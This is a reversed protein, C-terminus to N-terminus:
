KNFTKRRSILLFLSGMFMLLLLGIIYLLTTGPGGAALTFPTVHINAIDMGYLAVGEHISYNNATEATEMARQALAINNTAVEYDTNARSLFEQAHTVQEEAYKVANATGDDSDPNGTQARENAAQAEALIANAAALQKTASEQDAIAQAQATLAEAYAEAAEKYTINANGDSEYEEHVFGDRDVMITRIMPNTIYGSYDPVEQIYFIRWGHKYTEEHENEGSFLKKLKILGQADTVFTQNNYFPDGNEDIGIPTDDDVEETWIKFTVGSLKTNDAGDYKYLVLENWTDYLKGSNMDFQMGTGDCISGDANLGNGLTLMVDDIPNSSTITVEAMQRSPTFTVIVPAAPTPITVTSITGDVDVTIVDQARGSITLAYQRDPTLNEITLSMSPTITAGDIIDEYYWKGLPISIGYKSSVGAWTDFYCTTNVDGKQAAQYNVPLSTDLIIGRDTDSNPHIQFAVYWEENLEYGDPSFLEVAIYSGYPLSEDIGDLGDNDFRGDTTAFGDEDTTITFLPTVNDRFYEAVARKDSVSLNDYDAKSTDVWRFTGNDDRVYVSQESINYIGIVAGGLTDEEAGSTLSGEDYKTFSVGGRYIDDEARATTTTSYQGDTEIWGSVATASYDQTTMSSALSTNIIVGDQRIQFIVYWDENIDYGDPKATEKAIYTGYPLDRAATTAIGNTNTYIQQVIYNEFGATNYGNTRIANLQAVGSPIVQNDKNVVSGNWPAVVRSINYITIQTMALGDGLIADGQPTTLATTSARDKDYKRFSVGGQIIQDNVTNVNADAELTNTNPNVIGGSVINYVPTLTNTQSSPNNDVMRVRMLWGANAPYMQNGRTETVEYGWDTALTTGIPIVDDGFYNYTSVIDEADGDTGFTLVCIVGNNPVATGNKLVVEYGSINRVTVQIGNFNADGQARIMEVDEKHVEISGYKQVEGFDLETENDVDITGSQNPEWEFIAYGDAGVSITGYVPTNNITYGAPAFVESVRVSGLPLQEMRPNGSDLYLYQGPAITDSVAYNASTLWGNRNATDQYITGDSARNRWNGAVDAISATDYTFFGDENTVFYWTKVPTGGSRPATATDFYEMKFVAGSVPKNYDLAIGGNETYVGKFLYVDGPDFNPRDSFAFINATPINGNSLLSRMVKPGQTNNGGTQSPLMYGKPAKTETVTVSDGVWVDLEFSATYNNAATAPTTPRVNNTVTTAGTNVDTIEVRFEVGDYVGDNTDMFTQSYMRNNVLQSTCPVSTTTKTIRTQTSNRTNEYAGSQDSPTFVNDFRLPTPNTVGQGITLQQYRNSPTVTWTGGTDTPATETARVVRSDAGSANQNWKINYIRCSQGNRLTITGNNSVTGSSAVTGTATTNNYIRYPVNARDLGTITFTFNKSTLDVSAVTGSITRTATGNMTTTYMDDGATSNYTNEVVTYTTGAPLSFTITEGAKLAFSYNGAPVNGTTGDSRTYTGANSFSATFGFDRTSDSAAGSNVTKSIVLNGNANTAQKYFIFDGPRVNYYRWYHRTATFTNSFSGLNTTKGSDVTGTLSQSNTAWTGGTENPPANETVTVKTGSPLNTLNVTQGAKIGTITINGSANTTATRNTGSDINYNIVTSTLNGGSSNKFNITFGFASDPLKMITGTVKRSTVDQTEGNSEKWITTYWAAAPISDPFGTEEFTVTRATNTLTYILRIQEANGLQFTGNNNLTGSGIQANSNASDQLIYAQQPGTYTFTFRGNYSDPYVVKRLYVAQTGSTTKSFSVNGNARPPADDAVAICVFYYDNSTNDNGGIRYVYDRWKENANADNYVTRDVNQGWMDGYLQGDNFTDPNDAAMILASFTADSVGLFTWEDRYSDSYNIAYDWGIAVIRAGQSSPSRALARQCAQTLINYINQKLQNASYVSNATYTDYGLNHMINIITAWVYDQGNTGDSYTAWYGNNGTTRVYRGQEPATNNQSEWTDWDFWLYANGWNGNGQGGGPVSGGAGGAGDAIIFDTSDINPVYGDKFEEFCVHSILINDDILSSIFEINDDFDGAENQHISILRSIHGSFSASAISTSNAFVSYDVSSGYNAWSHIYGTEGDHATIILASDINGPVFYKVNSGNNGAAGVVIIGSDVAQNVIETLVQNEETAYASMSLNIIKVNQSMAYQIAAIVTSIDGRGNVDLAKISLIRVDPNQATIFKAMETGHGNDDSPDDGILSISAVVNDSLSAGTDILAIDYGSESSGEELANELENFPNDEETMVTDTVIPESIVEDDDAVAIGSDVEIFDVSDYLECFAASAEEPTEFQLIHIDNFSSVVPMRELLSSDSTIVILRKSSFDISAAVSAIDEPTKEEKPTEPKTEPETPVEIEENEEENETAEERGPREIGLYDCYWDAYETVKTNVFAGECALEEVHWADYPEPYKDKEKGKLTGYSADVDYPTSFSEDISMYKGILAIYKDNLENEEEHKLDYVHENFLDGAFELSECDVFLYSADVLSDTNWSSIARVDELSRAGTFMFSADRMYDTRIYKLGSIDELAELNAFAFSMDPNAYIFDDRGSSNYYLFLTNVYENYVTVPKDNEDYIIFHDTGDAIAAEHADEGKVYWAVLKDNYSLSVTEQDESPATDSWVIAQILNDISYEDYTAIETFESVPLMLVDTESESEESPKSDEKGLYSDLSISAAFYNTLDLSLYEDESMEATLSDILSLQSQISQWNEDNAVVSLNNIISQADAGESLAGDTTAPISDEEQVAVEPKKYEAALQKIAANIEKGSLTMEITEADIAMAPAIGSPIITGVAVLLALAASSVRNRLQKFKPM